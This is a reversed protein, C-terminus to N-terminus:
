WSAVQVTLWGRLDDIGGQDMNRWQWIFSLGQPASDGNLVNRLRMQLRRENDELALYLVDGQEVPLDDLANRGSAVAVVFNMALLSKGIKPKGALLTLGEPLIGPIVFKPEIFAQAM